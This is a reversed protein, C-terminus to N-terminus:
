SQWTFNGECQNGSEGLYKIQDGNANGAVSVVDSTRALQLVVATCVNREDAHARECVYTYSAVTGVGLGAEARVMEVQENV